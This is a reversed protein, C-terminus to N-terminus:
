CFDILQSECWPKVNKDEVDDALPIRIQHSRLSWFRRNSMLCQWTSSNLVANLSCREKSEKARKWSRYPCWWGMAKSSSSRKEVKRKLARESERGVAWTGGSFFAKNKNWHKKEYVCNKETSLATTSCNLKRYRTFRVRRM